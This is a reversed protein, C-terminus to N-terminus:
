GIMAVLAVYKVMIDNEDYELTDFVKYKDLVVFNCSLDDEDQINKVAFCLYKTDAFNRILKGCLRNVANTINYGILLLHADALEQFDIFESLTQITNEAVDQVIERIINLENEEIFIDLGEENTFQM